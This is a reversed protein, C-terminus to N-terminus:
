AAAQSPVAALSLPLFLLWGPKCACIHTTRLWVLQHSKQSNKKGDSQLRALLADATSRNHYAAQFLAQQKV